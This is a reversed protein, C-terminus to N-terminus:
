GNGWKWINVGEDIVDEGPFIFELIRIYINCASKWSACDESVFCLVNKNSADKPVVRANINSSKVFFVPPKYAFIMKTFLEVKSIGGQFPGLYYWSKSQHITTRGLILVDGLDVSKVYSVLGRKLLRRGWGVILNPLIFINLVPKLFSDIKEFRQSYRMHCPSPTWRTEDNHRM